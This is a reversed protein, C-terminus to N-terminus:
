GRIREGLLLRQREDALEKRIKFDSNAVFVRLERQLYYDAM